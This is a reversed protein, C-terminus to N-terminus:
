MTEGEMKMLVGGGMMRRMEPGRSFSIETQVPQVAQTLNLPLGRGRKRSKPPGKKAKSSSSREKSGNPSRLIALQTTNKHESRDNERKPSDKGRKPMEGKPGEGNPEEGM